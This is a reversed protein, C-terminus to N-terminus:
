HKIHNMMSERIRRRGRSLLARVNVPTLGTIHAIEDNSYGMDSSLRIVERQNSPLSAIAKRVLSLSEKSELSDEVNDSAPISEPIEVCEERSRIRSLAGNRVATLCYSKHNLSESIEDHKQWLRLITDQVVDAADDEQRLQLFAVRYMADQLPLILARFEQGTM